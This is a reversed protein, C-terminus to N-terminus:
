NIMINKINLRQMHLPKKKQHCYNHYQSRKEMKKMIQSKHELLLLLTKFLTISYRMCKLNPPHQQHHHPAFHHPLIIKSRREEEEKGHGYDITKIM